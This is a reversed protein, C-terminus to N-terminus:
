FLRLQGPADEPISWYVVCDWKGLIPRFQGPADINDVLRFNCRILAKIKILMLRYEDMKYMEKKLIM